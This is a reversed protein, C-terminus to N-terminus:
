ILWSQGYNGAVIVVDFIDADGDSDIDCNSEYQQQEENTGYIGSIKIRAHANFPTIRTTM